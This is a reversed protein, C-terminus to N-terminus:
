TCGPASFTDSCPMWWIGGPLRQTVLSRSLGQGLLLARHKQAFDFCGVLLGM